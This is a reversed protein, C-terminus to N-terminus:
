HRDTREGAALTMGTVLVAGAGPLGTILTLKGAVGSDLPRESGFKFARIHALAVAVSNTEWMACIM